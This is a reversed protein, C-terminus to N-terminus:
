GRGGLSPTSDLVAGQAGVLQAFSEGREVLRGGSEAALSERPDGVLAGLDQARIRLDQDLSRNLDNGLRAYLFFGTATLVAAMAVAFAAAVRRPHPDEEDTRASATGPGACRRSRVGVSRVTSSTACDGSTCM